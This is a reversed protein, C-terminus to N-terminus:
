AWSASPSSTVPLTGVWHLNLFRGLGDLLLQSVLALYGLYMIGVDLRRIAVLPKWFCFRALLLSALTLATAGALMSPLLSEFVMALGAAQDCQRTAPRLIEVQFVGKMFQVADAELM